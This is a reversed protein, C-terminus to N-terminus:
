LAAYGCACRKVLVQWVASGGLHVELLEFIGLLM